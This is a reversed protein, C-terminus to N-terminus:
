PSAGEPKQQKLSFEIGFRAAAILRDISQAYVIAEGPTPKHQGHAVRNRLNRLERVANYYQKSLGTERTELDALLRAIGRRATRGSFVVVALDALVSELDEWARIVVYSASNEAERILLRLEPELDELPEQEKSEVSEAVSEVALEVSEEEVEALLEGFELEQGM